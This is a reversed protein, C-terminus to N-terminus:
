DNKGEKLELIVDSVIKVMLDLDLTPIRKDDVQGIFAPIHIFLCKNTLEYLSRYYIYNCLYSGANKSIVLNPYNLKSVLKDLDFDTYLYHSKGEYIEENPYIGDVDAARINCLNTARTELSVNERGRAQGLLIIFSFDDSNYAKKLTEFDNNYSVRLKIKTLFPFDIKNALEESANVLNDGFPGFFAMLIKKM